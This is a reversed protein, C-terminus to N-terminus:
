FIIRLWSFQLIEGIYRSDQPYKFHRKTCYLTSFSSFSSLGLPLELLIFGVFDQDYNVGM